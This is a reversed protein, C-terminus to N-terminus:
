GPTPMAHRRRRRVVTAVGTTLGLVGIVGVLGGAARALRRDHIRPIAYGPAPSDKQVDAVRGQHLFGQDAAVRTLGDPATSAFSSAVVAVVVATILAAVLVRRLPTM